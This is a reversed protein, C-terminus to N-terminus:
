RGQAGKVPREQLVLQDALTRGFPDDDPNTPTSAAALIEPALTTPDPIPLLSIARSTLGFNGGAHPTAHESWWEGAHQSNLVATLSALHADDHNM